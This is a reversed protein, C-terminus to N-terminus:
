VGILILRECVKLVFDFLQSKSVREHGVCPESVVVAKHVSLLLRITQRVRRRDIDLESLNGDRVRAVRKNSESYAIASRTNRKERNLDAVDRTRRKSLM